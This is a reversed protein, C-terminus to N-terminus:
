GQLLVDLDQALVVPRDLGALGVPAPTCIKQGAVDRVQQATGEVPHGCFALDFQRVTHEAHKAFVSHRVVFM